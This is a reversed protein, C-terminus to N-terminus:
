VLWQGTAVLQVKGGVSVSIEQDPRLQRSSIIHLLSPRDIEYGQEIQWAFSTRGEYGCHVLYAALCGNASGTAPDEPIGLAHTFVRVHLDNAAQLTEPCFILISKAPLKEILQYYLTIELRAKQVAALNKLPVIMFPLGTSVQWIPYDDIDATEIQLVPALQEKTLEGLFEPEKQQMWMVGPQGDVYSFTVPIQGATYELTVTPMNQQAIFQQIVWATGLTPHGAFPLEISPTFIKVPYTSGTGTIFTSESFNIEKAIQQMQALSLHQAGGFVALQNGTYKDVAFVDVIWFDLSTM